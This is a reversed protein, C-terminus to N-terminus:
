LALQWHLVSTCRVSRFSRWGWPLTRMLRTGHTISLKKRWALMGKAAVRWALRRKAAGLFVRRGLPFPLAGGLPPVEGICPWRPTTPLCVRLLEANYHPAAAYGPAKSLLDMQTYM